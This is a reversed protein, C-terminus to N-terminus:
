GERTEAQRPTAPCQERWNARVAKVWERNQAEFIVAAELARNLWGPPVKM